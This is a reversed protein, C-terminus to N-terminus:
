KGLNENKKYVPNSLELYYKVLDHLDGFYQARRKATFVSTHETNERGRELWYYVSAIFDQM